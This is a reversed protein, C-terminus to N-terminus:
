AAIFLISSPVAEAHVLTSVFFVLASFCFAAAGVLVSSFPPLSLFPGLCSLVSPSCVSVFLSPLLSRLGGRAFWPWRGLFGYPEGFSFPELAELVETGFILAWGALV